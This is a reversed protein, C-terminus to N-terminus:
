GITCTALNIAGMELNWDVEKQIRQLEDYEELFDLYDRLDNIQM